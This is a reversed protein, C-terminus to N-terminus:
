DIVGTEKLNNLAKTQHEVVEAQYKEQLKFGDFVKSILNIYQSNDKENEFGLDQNNLWVKKEEVLPLLFVLVDKVIDLNQLEVSYYKESLELTRTLGKNFVDEQNKDLTEFFINVYKKTLNIQENQFEITIAKYKNLLEMSSLLDNKAVLNEVNLINEISNENLKLTYANISENKLKLYEEVIPSATRIPKNDEIVTAYQAVASAIVVCLTARFQINESKKRTFFYAILYILIVSGSSYGFIEGLSRSGYFISNPFILMGLIPILFIGGILITFKSKFM